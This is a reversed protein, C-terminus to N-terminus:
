KSSAADALTRIMIEISSTADDNGPIPYDIPSPDSDSDVLAVIPVGTSRAEAVAIREVRASALVIAKPLESMGKLGGIQRELKVIERSIMLQEKKTYSGLANERVKKQLDELKQINKRVSEFNTLLGGVWREKLYYAGARKAEREIAGQAQRHTGVFM